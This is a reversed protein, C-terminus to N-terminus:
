PLVDPSERWPRFGPAGRMDKEKQQKAKKRAYYTVRERQLRSLKGLQAGKGYARDLIHVPTGVVDAVIGEGINDELTEASSTYGSPPFEVGFVRLATPSKEPEKEPPEVSHQPDDYRRNVGDGDGSDGDSVATGNRGANANKAGGGLPTKPRAPSYIGPRQPKLTTQKILHNLRRNEMQLEAAQMQLQRETTLGDVFVSAANAVQQGFTPAYNLGRLAQGVGLLPNFGAAEFRERIYAPDQMALEKERQKRDKNAGFLGLVGSAIAGWPFAM